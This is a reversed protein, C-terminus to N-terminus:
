ELSKDGGSTVLDIAEKGTVPNKERFKALKKRDREARKIDRRAKRDEKKKARKVLKAQKYTETGEGEAKKADEIRQAKKAKRAERQKKSLGLVEMIPKDIWRDVGKSEEGIINGETDYKNETTTDRSYETEWWNTKRKQYKRPNAEVKNTAQEVVKKVEENERKEDVGSGLDTNTEQRLPSSGVMKFKPSNGSKLKFAM